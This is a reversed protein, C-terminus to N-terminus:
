SSLSSATHGSRPSAARNHLSALAPGGDHRFSERGLSVSCQVGLARGRWARIITPCSQDTDSAAFAMMTDEGVAFRQAAGLLSPDAPITSRGGRGCVLRVRVGSHIFRCM